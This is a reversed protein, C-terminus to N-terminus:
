GVPKGGEGAYTLPAADLRYGITLQGSSQIKALTADAAWTPLALAAIAGAALWHKFFSHM